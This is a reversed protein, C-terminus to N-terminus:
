GNNDKRRGAGCRTMCSQLQVDKNKLPYDKCELHESCIRMFEQSGAINMGNINIHQAFM